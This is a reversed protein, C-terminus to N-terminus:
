LFQFFDSQAIGIMYFYQNSNQRGQCAHMFVKYETKIQINYM